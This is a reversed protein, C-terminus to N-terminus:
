QSMALRRLFRGESAISSRFGLLGQMFLNPRLHTFAMGSAAIADEVVAHYRLFRVPSQRAAHLQSLYVIHQVGAARAQEVFSLQQTGVRETSNTALFACHVGELARRVSAPHDFDAAVYEVAALPGPEPKRRAMARVVAGSGALRKVIESGTNGTAGAVLIVPTGKPSDM